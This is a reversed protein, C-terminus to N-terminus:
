TTLNATPKDDTLCTACCQNRPETVDSERRRRGGNDDNSIPDDTTNTYDDDNSPSPAPPPPAPYECKKCCGTASNLSDTLAKKGADCKYGALADCMPKWAAKKDDANDGSNANNADQSADVCQQQANGM